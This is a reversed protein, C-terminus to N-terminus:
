WSAPFQNQHPPAPSPASVNRSITSAAQPASTGSGRLISRLHNSDGTVFAFAIEKLSVAVGIGFSLPAKKVGEM